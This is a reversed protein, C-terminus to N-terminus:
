FPKVLIRICALYADEQDDTCGTSFEVTRIISGHPTFSHRKVENLLKNIFPLSHETHRRYSMTAYIGEPFVDHQVRDGMNPPIVECLEERTYMACSVIDNNIVLHAPDFLQGINCINPSLRCSKMFDLLALEHDRGNVISKNYRVVRLEPFHLFLVRSVPLNNTMRLNGIKEDLYKKRVTDERIRKELLDRNSELAQIYEESNPVNIINRIEKLPLGVDKLFIIMRLRDFQIHDYFRYGTTENVMVPTFLGLKEYLRLAPVSINFLESVEGIKLLGSKESEM